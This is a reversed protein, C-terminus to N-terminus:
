RSAAYAAANWNIAISTGDMAVPRVGVGALLGAEDPDAAYDWGEAARVEDYIHDHGNECEYGRGDPLHWSLGGCERSGAEGDEEFYVPVHWACAWTETASFCRRVVDVNVHYTTETHDRNGCRIADM